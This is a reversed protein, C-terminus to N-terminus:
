GANSAPATLESWLKTARQRCRLVRVRLTGPSVGLRESMARYDLGRYLMGWLERCAQSMGAVVRLAVRVEQRLASEREPGPEPAEFAEPDLPAYPRRRRDRLRNLCRYHVSRRVYTAFSSRGEFRGARLSETLSLLIESEVDEIEGALKARYSSVAGRIWRRVQEFAAPSGALFDEIQAADDDPGAPRDFSTENMAM